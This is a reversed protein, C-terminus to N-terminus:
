VFNSLKKPISETLCLLLKVDSIETELHNDFIEKFAMIKVKHEPHENLAKQVGDRAGNATNDLQIPMGEYLKRTTELDSV